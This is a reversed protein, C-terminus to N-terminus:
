NPLRGSGYQQANQQDQRQRQLVVGTGGAAAGAEAAAVVQSETMASQTPVVCVCGDTYEGMFVMGALKMGAATCKAECGARGDAVRANGTFNTACGAALFGMTLVGFIQKLM